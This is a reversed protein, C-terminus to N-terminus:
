EDEDIFIEEDYQPPKKEKLFKKLKKANDEVKQLYSLDGFQMSACEECYYESSNKIFFEAEGGCLVCKKAM